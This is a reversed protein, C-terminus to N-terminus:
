IHAFYVNDRHPAGLVQHIRFVQEVQKFFLAVLHEVIGFSGVAVDGDDVGAAEDAVRLLFADVHDQVKAFQLFAAPELLHEHHSAERFAVQLLEFLFNRLHVLEVPFEVPVLYQGVQAM